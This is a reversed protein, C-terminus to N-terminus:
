AARRVEDAVGHIALLARRLVNLRERDELTPMMMSPPFRGRGLLAECILNHAWPVIEDGWAPDVVLSMLVERDHGRLAADMRDFRRDAATEGLYGSVSKDTREYSGTKPATARYRTWYHEGFFRGANRLDLADIGPGDLLGLIHLQGIGDCIDQDIEGVRGDPGRTPSAFSFLKRRDLIYNAPPNRAQLADLARSLQGSKTRRGAKRKAMLGERVCECIVPEVWYIVETGVAQSRQRIQPIM